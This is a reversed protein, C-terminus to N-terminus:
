AKAPECGILTESKEVVYEIVVDRNDLRITPSISLARGVPIDSSIRKVGGRPAVVIPNTTKDVVADSKTVFKGRIM